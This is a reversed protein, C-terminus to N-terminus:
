GGSLQIEKCKPPISIRRVIPRTVKNVKALKPAAQPVASFELVLVFAATVVTGLGVGAAALAFMVFMFAFSCAFMFM